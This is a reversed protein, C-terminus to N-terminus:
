CKWEKAGGLLRSMFDRWRIGSDERQFRSFHIKWEERDTFTLADLGYFGYTKMLVGNLAQRFKLFDRAWAEKPHTKEHEALQQLRTARDGPVTRFGCFICEHMCFLTSGDEASHFLTVRWHGILHQMQEIRM